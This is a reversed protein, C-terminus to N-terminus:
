DSLHGYGQINAAGSPDWLWHNTRYHVVDNDELDEVSDEGIELWGYDSVDFEDNGSGGYMIDIEDDEGGDILFASRFGFIDADGAVLRDDNGDGVLLDSGSGGIMFDNGWGGYLFDDGSGGHMLDNGWEGFLWDSGQDGLLTDAGLGGRITDDGSGGDLLDQGSSGFLRDNGAEGLITDDDNGGSMFDDGSGGKMNDNGYNGYLIDHDRGGRLTDDGWGGYLRDNGRQGYLFDGEGNGELVDDGSGGVLTDIKSNGKLHDNGSGGYARSPLDVGNTFKDNGGYGQFVINRIRDNGQSDLRQLTLTDSFGINNSVKIQIDDDGPDATGNRLLEVTATDHFSSGEIVVDTGDGNFEIEPAWNFMLDAAMLRRDELSEVNQWNRKNPKRKSGSRTKKFLAMTEDGPPLGDSFASLRQTELDRDFCSALVCM